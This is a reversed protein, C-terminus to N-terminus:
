EHTINWILLTLPNVARRHLAVVIHSMSYVSSNAGGDQEDSADLGVVLLEVLLEDRKRISQIIIV